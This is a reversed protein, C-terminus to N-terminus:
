VGEGHDYMVGLVYQSGVHGQKAAKHLWRAAEDRNPIVGHGRVLLIGLAYQSGADGQEAAKHFWRVVEAGDVDCDKCGEQASKRVVDEVAEDLFFLQRFGNTFSV